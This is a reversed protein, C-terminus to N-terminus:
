DVIWWNIKKRKNDNLNKCLINEYNSIKNKCLIIENEITQEKNLKDIKILYKKIKDYVGYGFNAYSSQDAVKSNLVAIETRDM